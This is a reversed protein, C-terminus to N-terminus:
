CALLTDCHAIAKIPDSEKLKRATTPDSGLDRWQSSLGARRARRATEAKGDSGPFGLGCQAM